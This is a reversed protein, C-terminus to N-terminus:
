FIILLLSSRTVPIMFWFLSRQQVMDFIEFSSSLSIVASLTSTEWMFTSSLIIGWSRKGWSSILESPMPNWPALIVNIYFLPLCSKERLHSIYSPWYLLSHALRYIVVDGGYWVITAENELDITKSYMLKGINQASWSSNSASISSDSMTTYVSIFAPWFSCFGLSASM